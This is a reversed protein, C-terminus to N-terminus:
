PSDPDEARNAVMQIPLTLLRSSFLGLLPLGCIVLPAQFPGFPLDAALTSPILLLSALVVSFTILKELGLPYQRQGELQVEPHPEAGEAPDDHGTM